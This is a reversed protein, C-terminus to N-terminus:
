CRLSWREGDDARANTARTDLVLARRLLRVGRANVQSKVVDGTRANARRYLARPVRAGTRGNKAFTLKSLGNVSLVTFFHLTTIM